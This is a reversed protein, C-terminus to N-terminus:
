FPQIKVLFVLVLSSINYFSHAFICVALNNEKIFYWAFVLGVLFAGLLEFLSGYLIHSISFALASLLMGYKKALFGRFFLEESIPAFFVAALILYLPIKSLKNYVNVTDPEIGFIWIIFSFVTLLVVIIVFLAIGHLVNKLLKNTSNIKEIFINPIDNYVLLIGLFFLALHFELAHIYPISNQLYAFIIILFFSVVACKFGFFLWIMFLFILAIAATYPFLFSFDPIYAFFISLCLTIFIVIFFNREM